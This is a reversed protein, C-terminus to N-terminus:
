KLYAEIEINTMENLTEEFRLIMNYQERTLMKELNRLINSNQNRIEIYRTNNERLKKIRKDFKKLNFKRM